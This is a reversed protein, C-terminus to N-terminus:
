GPIARRQGDMQHMDLAWLHVQIGAYMQEQRSYYERVKTAEHIRKDKLVRRFAEKGLNEGRKEYHSICIETRCSTM